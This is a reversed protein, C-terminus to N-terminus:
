KKKNRTCTYVHIYRKVGVQSSRSPPPNHNRMSRRSDNTVIFDTQEALSSTAHQTIDEVFVRVPRRSTMKLDLCTHSKGHPFCSSFMHPLDNRSSAKARDKHRASHLKLNVKHSKLVREKFADLIDQTIIICDGPERVLPLHQFNSNQVTQPRRQVAVTQGGNEERNTRDM